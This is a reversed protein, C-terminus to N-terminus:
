GQNKWEITGVGVGLTRMDQNNFIRAPKWMTGPEIKLEVIENNDSNLDFCLHHWGDKTLM